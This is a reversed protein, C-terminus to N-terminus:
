AFSECFIREASVGAAIAVQTAAEILLPPGCLFVDPLIKANALHAKLADAPTGCFGKWNESPQWVCIEVKLQPIADVLTALEDQYFIERENNVGLFLHTPHDEGWEAMRQLISLFPALGTGGAVFCRPNLSQETIGFHGAPASVELYQGVKASEQLYTSFQGQPQLRILFELRGDWNPTSAISYARKLALETVELEVFQGPEFEFAVGYEPDAVLQLVLLMTREAILEVQVIEAVRPVERSSRIHSSDYPITLQLDSDPYTRCLLVDGQERPNEPLLSRTYSELRYDGKTCRGLCSGCSGVNCLAPLFFGAAEAAQQISQDPDCNFDIQQGDHTTLKIAYSM